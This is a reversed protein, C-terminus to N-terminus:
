GFVLWYSLWLLHGLGWYIPIMWKIWADKNEFWWPATLSVTIIFLEIGLLQRM